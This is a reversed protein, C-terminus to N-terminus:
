GVGLSGVRHAVDVSKLDFTAMAEDRIRALEEEAVERYAEVEVGSIGDDRVTGLFAVVAGADPRKAGAVLDEISFERDTIEIAM